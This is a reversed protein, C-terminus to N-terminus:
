GGCQRTITQVLINMYYFVINKHWKPVRQKEWKRRRRDTQACLPCPSWPTNLYVEYFLGWYAFCKPCFNCVFIRSHYKFNCLWDFSQQQPFSVWDVITKWFRKSLSQFCNVLISWQSWVTDWVWQRWQWWVKKTESLITFSEKHPETQDWENSKANITDLCVVANYGLRPKILTFCFCNNWEDCLISQLRYCITKIKM